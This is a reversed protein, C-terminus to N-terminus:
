FTLRVGVRADGTRADGSIELSPFPINEPGDKGHRLDLIFLGVTVLLAGQGALLRTRARRDYHLSTGYYQEAASNVYRGDPGLACDAHNARCMNLLADWADASRSHEHAGMWTLSVATAATLWKGYHVTLRQANRTARQADTATADHGPRCLEPWACRAVRLAYRPMSQAPLQAPLWLMAVVLIGATRTM